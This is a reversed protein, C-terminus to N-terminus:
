ELNGSGNGLSRPIRAGWFDKWISLEDPQADDEGM